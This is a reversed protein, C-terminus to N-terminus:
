VFVNARSVGGQALIFNRARKMNPDNGSVGALKLAFYAQISVNLDGEGGPYTSWSGDGNQRDQVYYIVKDRRVSEVEGRMLHMQPFYGASVSVDSELEGLWYGQQSQRELLYTQAKHIAAELRALDNNSPMTTLSESLSENHSTNGPMINM